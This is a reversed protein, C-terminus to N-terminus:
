IRWLGITRDDSASALYEGKPSFGINGIEGSHGKLIRILVGSLIDWVGITLDSSGSALYM